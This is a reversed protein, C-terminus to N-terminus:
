DGMINGDFGVRAIFGHGEINFADVGEPIQRENDRATGPPAYPLTPVGDLQEHLHLVVYPTGGKRVMRVLLPLNMSAKAGKGVIVTREGGKREWNDEPAVWVADLATFDPGKVRPTCLYGGGIVPVLIAGHVTEGDRATFRDRYLDAVTDFIRAAKEMLGRNHDLITANDGPTWTTRWYRDKIVLLLAKYFSPWDDDFEQVCRDPYVLLKRRLGVRMDNAVVVHCRSALAVGHAADLLEDETAGSLMKCGVLNLSPNAERMGGIVSEALVFPIDIRDGPKYGKTQMKGTVPEAPIWNVVAAALIASGHVPALAWCKDRYDAFGSHTVVTINESSNAVPANVDPVLLTVSHGRDSLHEAFRSAWIGRVRNGVIKNDDLRGYVQGATILVADTM